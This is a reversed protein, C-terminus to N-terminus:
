QWGGPSTEKEQARWFNREAVKVPVSPDIYMMLQSGNRDSAVIVLLDTISCRRNTLRLADIVKGIAGNTKAAARQCEKWFCPTCFAPFQAVGLPLVIPGLTGCCACNTVKKPMGREDITTTMNVRATQQELLEQAHPSRAALWRERAETFAADSGGQCPHAAAM